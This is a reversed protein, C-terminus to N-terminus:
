LISCITIIFASPVCIGNNLRFFVLQTLLAACFVAKSESSMTLMERVEATGNSKPM